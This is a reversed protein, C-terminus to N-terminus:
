ERLAPWLLIVQPYRCQYVHRLSPQVSIILLCVSQSEDFWGIPDLQIFFCIWFNSTGGMLSDTKKLCRQPALKIGVQATPLNTNIPPHM